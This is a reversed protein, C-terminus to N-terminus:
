VAKIADYRSLIYCLFYLFKKPYGYDSDDTIEEAVGFWQHKGHVDLRKEYAYAKILATNVTHNNQLHIEHVVQFLKLVVIFPVYVDAQKM